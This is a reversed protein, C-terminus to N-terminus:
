IGKSVFNTIFGNMTRVLWFGKHIHNISQKNYGEILNTIYINYRVCEPYSYYTFLLETNKLLEIVRPYM